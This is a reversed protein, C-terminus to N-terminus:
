PSTFTEREFCKRPLVYEFDLRDAKFNLFPNKIYKGVIVGADGSNVGLACWRRALKEDCMIVRTGKRIM